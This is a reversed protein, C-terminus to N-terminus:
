KKLINVIESIKKNVVQYCTKVGDKRPKIIGRSKLISLHQSVTSQPIGLKNVMETVNCENEMIGAIMQLRIPHAIAKLIESYKECDFDSNM